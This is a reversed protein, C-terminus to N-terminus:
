GAQHVSSLSLKSLSNFPGQPSPVLGTWKKSTADIHDLAAIWLYPKKEALYTQMKWVEDKRQAQDPTLQQKSYMADYKKDCFGTDNWGSWQDCTVVSLMFDPDMLGVWDWLAIDFNAYKGDPATMADFAATSDLAKQTLQVGIKRFAPQLIEFTRNASHLDTPTIVEYAMKQGNAVRIGDGGKKYGLGDLIRNSEGPSFPTAQINSNFWEGTAEPIITAGPKAAGLFVVNVVQQRDIALDFAQRVKPNQLEPHSKKNPSSNIIFDTQDVGPVKSVAFDANELTKVSTPPLEEISDIEGAKLAAVLADDNSFMRLGFTSV